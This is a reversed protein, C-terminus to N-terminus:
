CLESLLEENEPAVQGLQFTFQSSVTCVEREWGSVIPQLVFREIAAYFLIAM